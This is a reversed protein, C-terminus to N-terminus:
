NGIFSDVMHPQEGPKACRRVAAIASQGGPAQLDVIAESDFTSPGSWEALLDFRLTMTKGAQMADLIGNSLMPFPGTQADALVVYDDAFLLAVPFINGDISVEARPDDNAPRSHPYVPRLVGEDTLYLQLQLLRDGSLTQECALVVTHINVNSRVPEVAAYSPQAMGRELMWGDSPSESGAHAASVAVFSILLILLRVPARAAVITIM